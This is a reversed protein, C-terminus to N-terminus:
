ASTSLGESMMTESAGPATHCMACQQRFFRFGNDRNEVGVLNPAQIGRSHRKISAERTTVLIWQLPTSDNVTAAVNFIGSYIVGFATLVGLFALVGLTAFVHKM